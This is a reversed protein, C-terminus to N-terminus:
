KKLALLHGLKEKKTKLYIRNEARPPIEIPVREVVELGYGVLGAIKRPNNTLLRIKKLGLDALIQAGIGYDRLDPPFGLMENAEVTDIGEDQLKYAKIKNLLGIGRGEQRMYLLVGRGETAIMKLAQALQDGCDCRLSGFVDGTLCESHVRTLVPEETQLDGMVLAIHCNHDVISEYAVATFDGYMTPLHTSTVKRILKETRRRYKILDVITIIKLNHKRAFDMLAPVRAMTGDDNMIECLVGAPYLGALRTLDVAAETHGTRRLVGGDKARLPFIHGPRRLDQPKTAPDILARVTEAREFASIGTTVSAADVSVTFATEHNDTNHAVMPQLDLEDLRKGTMPVCILGRGYTAMFNIAEPTVKEAAIVLDGENERDEDDVVIIMQGARIEAIAEEITNFKELEAM